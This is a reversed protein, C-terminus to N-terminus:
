KSPKTIYPIRVTIITGEREMSAVTVGYDVGYLLQIRSHVNLLGIGHKQDPLQEGQLIVQLRSLTDCPIGQGNDQVSFQISESYKTITIKIQTPSNTKEVVHRIANEVLPQLIFKPAFFPHIGPDMEIEYQCRQGYRMKQIYLYDTIHKVEDGINVVDGRRAAFRLMHCLASIMNSARVSDDLEIVMQISELTNYLFHPSIQSQLAALEAEKQRIEVQYVRQVLEQIREVMHNFSNGLEGIEDTQHVPFSVRFNGKEVERMLLQLSRIPSTVTQSFFFSILVSVILCISFIAITFNRIGITERTLEKVPNITALTWNTYDSVDASVMVRERNIKLESTGKSLSIEPTGIKGIFQSDNNYVTQGVENNLLVMGNNALPIRNCIKSIEDLSVILLVTCLPNMNEADYLQKYISIFPQNNEFVLKLREPPVFLLKGQLDMEQQFPNKEQLFASGQFNLRSSSFVRNKSQIFVAIVDQHGGNVINNALYSQVTFAEQEMVSIKDQDKKRLIAMVEGSRTVVDPISVLESLYKDINANAQNLIAPVYEGVNKEISKEYQRYSLYGLVFLPLSVLLLYTIFLKTRFRVQLRRM